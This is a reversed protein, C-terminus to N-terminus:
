DGFIGRLQEPSATELFHAFAQDDMSMVQTSTLQGEPAGGGTSLSKNTELGRRAAAVAEGVPTRQQQGPPQASATPRQGGQPKQGGQQGAQQQAPEPRYGRAKAMIYLQKAPSQKNDLALKALQKEESVVTKSISDIQQQTLRTGEEYIDIGFRQAALEAVRTEMMKEYAKPFDPYQAIFSRIDDGYQQQLVQEDNQAAVGGRVEVLAKELLETKKEQWKSWAFINENRNPAPGLEELSQPNWEEAEVDPQAIQQQQAAPSSKLAEVIMKYREDTRTLQEQLEAARKEAATAKERARVFKNYNVRQPFKGGQTPDAGDDDDDDAAAQQQGPQQQGEAAIAARAAADAQANVDGKVLGADDSSGDDIEADPGSSRQMELFQASEEASLGDVMPQDNTTTDQRRDMDRDLLGGAEDGALAENRVNM